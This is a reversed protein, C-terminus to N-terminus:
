PSVGGAGALQEMLGRAEALTPDLQLSKRLEVLAEARRGAEFLARALLYYTAADDSAQELARRFHGISEEYRGVSALLGALNERAELHAPDLALVREFLVIAETTQGQLAHILAGNYLLDPNDQVRALGRGLVEKAGELNGAQALVLSLNAYPEPRDPALAIVREYHAVADALQGAEFSLRGLIQHMSAPDEDRALARRAWAAAEASSGELLHVWALQSANGLTAFLGLRQVRELRRRAEAVQERQQGTLTLPLAALDVSALRLGGLPRTAREARFTEVRHWGSHAWFLALLGLGALTWRGTSTVRGGAKLVQRYFFVDGKTLLRWGILAAYALLGAVGLSMLFPVTGYLGRFALFAALFAVGLVAEEAWSLPRKPKTPQAVRPKAFLPLPGAGYYLAGNPCVSVCDLCKMCGSSVVMGWDRVEEHVRVNSTCSATCHGCGQCADTVRIRLPSLKEAVGFIAGYPCAYACFGKAGLFYIVVFGCILFTLVGIVWGPFTAWFQSTTLEWDLHGFSDGIWLRYAAPWLFMYCFALGPVLVLVRSRLPKPRIGAKVLLHRCLDQLAVLHCAWGCFFRGFIATSLIMAAFFILGANIVGSRAFAMAESPEVPTLTTGATLWHALHAAIALHVVVLVAARWKSSRSTKMKAPPPDAPLVKLSARAM